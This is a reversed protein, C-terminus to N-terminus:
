MSDYYNNIDDEDNDDHHMGDWWVLNVEWDKGSCGLHARHPECGQGSCGLHARHPGCGQIHRGPSCRHLSVITAVYFMLRIVFATVVCADTLVVLMLNSKCIQEVDHCRESVYDHINLKCLICPHPSLVIEGLTAALAAVHEHVQALLEHVLEAWASPLMVMPLPIPNSIHSSLLSTVRRMGDWMHNAWAIPRLLEVHAYAVEVAVGTLFAVLVVAVAISRNAGSLHIHRSTFCIYELGKSTVDSVLVLALM